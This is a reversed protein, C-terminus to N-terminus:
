KFQNTFADISNIIATNSNWIAKAWLLARGSLLSILFAVKSRETPFMSPQMEIFLVIQLLFDGGCDAADGAYTAPLAM